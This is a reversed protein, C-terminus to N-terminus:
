KKFKVVEFQDKNFGLKMDRFIIAECQPYEKKAMAAYMTFAETISNAVAMKHMTAIYEYPQVPTSNFFVFVDNYKQVTALGNSKETQFSLLFMIAMTYILKQFLVAVVKPPVIKVRKFEQLSIINQCYERVVTDTQKWFRRHSQKKATALVVPNEVDINPNHFIARLQEKTYEKVVPAKM